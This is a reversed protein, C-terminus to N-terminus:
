TIEAIYLKLSYSLSEMYQFGGGKVEIADFMKLGKRIGKTKVTPQQGTPARRAHWHVGYPLLCRM